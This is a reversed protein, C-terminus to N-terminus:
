GASVVEAEQEVDGEQVLLTDLIDTMAELAEAARALTKLAKASPEEHGRLRELQGQLDALTSVLTGEFAELRRNREVVAQAASLIAGRQKIIDRLQALEQDTLGAM